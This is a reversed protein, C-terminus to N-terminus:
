AQWFPKGAEVRAQHETVGIDDLQSPTLSALDARSRARERWTKVIGTLNAFGGISPLGARDILHDTKM